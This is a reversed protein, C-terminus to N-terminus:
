RYLQCTWLVTLAIGGLLVVLAAAEVATSGVGVQTAEALPGM